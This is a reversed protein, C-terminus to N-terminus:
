ELRKKIAARALGLMVVAFGAMVALDRLIIEPIDGVLFLTQLLDVFWTAPFIHGLYYVPAPASTLDFIFGSLMLTPLFCLVLVVQSALFQSKITCSVLLGIGLAILLYLASAAVVLALSGRMPVQFLFASAALCLSLGILGLFFYPVTKGILIEGERAPTAILAEFTGREWERAVVLATLLAGILTMILVTVGPVLFYNSEMAHNYWIRPEAVALGPGAAGPPRAGAAWQGVAGELYRRMIRARNADRGNVVIQVHEGGEPPDDQRRVIADTQENRLLAEAERMSHVLTPSFYRSLGLRIYLDRTLPSSSEQVVTVPVLTVDLSLGYGFLILLFVPLFIGLTLTSKDRLMQRTEKRILAAARSQAAQRGSASVSM